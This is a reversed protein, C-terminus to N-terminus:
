LVTALSSAMVLSRISTLLALGPAWSSAADNQYRRAGNDHGRLRPMWYASVALYVESLAAYQIM